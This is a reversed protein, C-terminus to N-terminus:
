DEYDLFVSDDNRIQRILETRGEGTLIGNPLPTKTFTHSISGDSTSTVFWGRRILDGIIPLRSARVYTRRELARTFKAKLLSEIIIGLFVFILFVLFPIAKGGRVLLARVPELSVVILGLAAIIIGIILPVFTNVLVRKRCDSCSPLQVPITMAVDRKYEKGRPHWDEAIPHLHGLTLQAYYSANNIKKGKCLWCKDSELIGEFGDDPVEEAILRIDEMVMAQEEESLKAVYCSQCNKANLLLCHPTCYLSCEKNTYKTENM